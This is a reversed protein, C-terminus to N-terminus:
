EHPSSLFADRHGCPVTEDVPVEQELVIKEEPFAHQMLVLQPVEHKGLFDAVNSKAILILGDSGVGFHRDSVFRAAEEPNQIMHQTVDVYVYDNGCGQMKDFKM